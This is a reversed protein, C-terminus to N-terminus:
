GILCFDGKNSVVSSSSLVLAKALMGNMGTLLGFSHWSNAWM